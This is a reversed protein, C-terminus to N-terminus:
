FWLAAESVHWIRGQGCLAGVMEWDKHNRGLHLYYDIQNELSRLLIDDKTSVRCYAAMRKKKDATSSNTSTFSQSNIKSM